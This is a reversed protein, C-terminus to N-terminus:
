GKMYKMLATCGYLLDSQKRAEVALLAIHIREDPRLNLGMNKFDFKTVTAPACAVKKLYVKLYMNLFVNVDRYNFDDHFIGKLRHVYYWISQRFPQTDVNQQEHFTHETMWYIHQFEEDLCPAVESFFRGIFAYGHDRWNYDQQRLVNYETSKVDFDAHKMDWNGRLRRLDAYNDGCCVKDDPIFESGAAKEFNRRKEETGEETDDEQDRSALIKVMNETAATDDLEQPTAAEDVTNLDADFESTIGCGFVFGALSTFSVLILIAHVLEGISWSDAGARVLTSIHNVNLRWPQHAMINMLELINIIKTPVSELGLLWKPDGGSKIFEIEQLRVLYNCDHQAAALIAIYHRWPIPLQGDDSMILDYTKSYLEYFSPHCCMLQVYHPVRGSEIFTNRYLEALPEKTTNIPEFFSRPIFNSPSPIGAPISLNPYEKRLQQILATFAEQVDSYPCENLWRIVGRLHNRLYKQVEPNNVTPAEKLATIIKGLVSARRSEDTSSLDGFFVETPVCISSEVAAFSSSFKQMFAPDDLIRSGPPSPNVSSNNSLRWSGSNAPRSDQVRQMASPHILEQDTSTNAWVPSSAFLAENKIDRQIQM